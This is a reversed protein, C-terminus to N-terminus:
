CYGDKVEIISSCYHYLWAVTSTKVCPWNLVWFHSTSVSLESDSFRHIDFLWFFSSFMWRTFLSCSSELNKLLSNGRVNRTNNFSCVCMCVCVWSWMIQWCPTLIVLPLSDAVNWLVVVGSQTKWTTVCGHMCVWLPLIIEMLGSGPWPFSTLEMNERWESFRTCIEPSGFLLFEVSCFIESRSDNGTRVSTKEQQIADYLIIWMLLHTQFLALNM